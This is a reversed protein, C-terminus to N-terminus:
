SLAAVLKGGHASVVELELLVRATSVEDENPLCNTIALKWSAIVAFQMRMRPVSGAGAGAPHACLATDNLSASADAWVANGFSKSPRVWGSDEEYWSRGTTAWGM